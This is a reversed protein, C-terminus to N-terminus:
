FSSLSTYFMDTYIRSNPKTNSRNRRWTIAWNTADRLSTPCSFDRKLTNPTGIRGCNERFIVMSMSIQYNPTSEYTNLYTKPSVKKGWRSESPCYSPRDEWFCLSGCYRIGAWILYEQIRKNTIFLRDLGAHCCFHGGDQVDIEM